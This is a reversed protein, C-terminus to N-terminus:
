HLHSTPHLIVVLHDVDDGVVHGVRRVFQMAQAFTMFSPLVEAERGTIDQRVPELREETDGWIDQVLIAPHHRTMIPYTEAYYGPAQILQVETALYYMRYRM